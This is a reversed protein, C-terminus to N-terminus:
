KKKSPYPLPSSPLLPPLTFLAQFPSLPSSHPFFPPLFPALFGLQSMVKSGKSDIPRRGGLTVKSDSKPKSPGAIRLAFRPSVRSDIRLFFFFRNEYRALSERSPLEWFSPPAQSGRLSVDFNDGFKLGGGVGHRRWNSNRRHFNLSVEFSNRVWSFQGCLYFFNACVTQTFEKKKHFFCREVAHVDTYVM